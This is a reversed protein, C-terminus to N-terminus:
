SRLALQCLMAVVNFSGAGPNHGGVGTEGGVQFEGAVRLAHGRPFVHLYAVVFGFKAVRKRVEAVGVLLGRIRSHLPAGPRSGEVMGALEVFEGHQPITARGKTLQRFMEEACRKAKVECTQV